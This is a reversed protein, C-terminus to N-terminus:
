APAYTAFRDIRGIPEAPKWSLGPIHANVLEGNEKLVAAPPHNMHFLLDDYKDFAASFDMRYVFDNDEGGWGEYREDFGGIRHFASSRAWVCAGPPRRLVFGRMAHIDATEEQHQVRQRIAHSTAPATLSLMNRYTLHGGTGPQQFRAANRAIFDRDTLIDADLVCIAEPSGPTNVVGVNVAWSKNFEGSKPAFVYHDVYPTIVERWRPTDDSEVVTVRFRARPFSQDGLSLLCALLNRLRTGGTDRDRFPIVVLIEASENGVPEALPKLARLDAVSIEDTGDRYLAGLHHGLRNDCEAAWAAAFLKATAPHDRDAANLAKQFARHRGPDAPSELLRTGAAHIEPDDHEKVADVVALLLDRSNEWFFICSRRSEPDMAVVLSDCVATALVNQDSPQLGSM